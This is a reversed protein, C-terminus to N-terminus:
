ALTKLLREQQEAGRGQGGYVIQGAKATNGGGCEAFTKLLEGLTAKHVGYRVVQAHQPSARLSPVEWRLLADGGSACGGLAPSVHQPGVRDRLLPEPQQGLPQIGDGHKVADGDHGGVGGRVLPGHAYVVVAVAGVIHQEGQGSAAGDAQQALTRRQGAGSEAVAEPADFPEVAAVPGEDRQNQGVCVLGGAPGDAGQAVRRLVAPGEHRRLPLKQGSVVRSDDPLLAAVAEAVVWGHADGGVGAQGADQCPRLAQQVRGVGEQAFVRLRIGAGQVGGFHLGGHRFGSLM